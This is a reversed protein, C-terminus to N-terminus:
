PVGVLKRPGGRATEADGADGASLIKRLQTRGRWVRSRVTGIPIREVEAAEEYSLGEIDCLVLATRFEIPLRRLGDWVRRRDDEGQLRADPAIADDDTADAARALPEARHRERGLRSRSADLFANRVIAYLWTSFAAGPRYQRVSRYAKLLAEQALDDADHDDRTFARAFRRVTALHGAILAEFAEVSGSQAREVLVDFDDDPGRADLIM